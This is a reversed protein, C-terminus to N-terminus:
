FKVTAGATLATEGVLRGEVNLNVFQAIDLDVGFVVGFSLVDYAAQFHKKGVYGSSETDYSLGKSTGIVMWSHYGGVYPVIATKLSEIEYKCTLYLSNQGDLGFFQGTVSTAVEGSRTIGKVDNLYGNGQIDFGIGFTLPELTYIPFLANLGGGMYVGDELDIVYKADQNTQSVFELDYNSGGAKGYLNVYDGLGIIGKGYIQNVKEVKMDRPGKKNDLKNMREHMYNYEFAAGVGIWKSTTRIPRVCNGAGGAFAPVCVLVLSICILAIVFRRGM